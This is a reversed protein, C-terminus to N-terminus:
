KTIEKQETIEKDIIGNNYTFVNKIEFHSAQIKIKIETNAHYEIILAEPLCNFKDCIQRCENEIIQSYKSAMEIIKDQIIEQINM